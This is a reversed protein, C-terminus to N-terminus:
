GSHAASALLCGLTWNARHPQVKRPATPQLSPFQPTRERSGPGTPSGSTHTRAPSAWRKDNPKDWVLSVELPKFCPQSLWCASETCSCTAPAGLAGWGVQHAHAQPLLPLLLLLPGHPDDDPHGEPDEGSGGEWRLRAGHGADAPLLVGCLVQLPSFHAQPPCGKSGFSPPSCLFGPPGPSVLPIMAAVLCESHPVRSHPLRCPGPGPFLPIESQPSM